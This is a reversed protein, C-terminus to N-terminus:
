RLSRRGANVSVSKRRRNEGERANVAQEQAARVALLASIAARDVAREVRRELESRPITLHKDLNGQRMPTNPQGEIALQIGVRPRDHLEDIGLACQHEQVMWEAADPGHRM